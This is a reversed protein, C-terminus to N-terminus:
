APVRSSPRCPAAPAPEVALRLHSALLRTRPTTTVKRWAEGAVELTGAAVRADYIQTLTQRM